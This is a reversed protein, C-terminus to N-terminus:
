MVRKRSVRHLNWETDIHWEQRVERIWCCRMSAGICGGAGQLVSGTGGDRAKTLVQGLHRLPDTGKDTKGLRGNM